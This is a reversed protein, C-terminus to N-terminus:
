GSLFLYPGAKVAQSVPSRPAPVGEAQIIKKRYPGRPDVAILGTEIIMPPSVLPVPIIVRAPPDIPFYEEWVEDTINLLHNASKHQYDYINQLQKIVDIVNFGAM